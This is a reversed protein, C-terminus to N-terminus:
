ISKHVNEFQRTIFIVLKTLVTIKTLKGITSAEPHSGLINWQQLRCHPIWASASCGCRGAHPQLYNSLAWVTQLYARHLVCNCMWFTKLMTAHCFFMYIYVDCFLIIGNWKATTNIPLFVMIRFAIRPWRSFLGENSFYTQTIEKFMARWAASCYDKKIKPV